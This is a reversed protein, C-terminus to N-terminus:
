PKAPDKQYVILIALEELGVQRLSHSSGDRTLVASGPVLLHVKGDLTLEARGSLVYYVEDRGHAHLGISAGDRLVRRRFALAFDPADQFFPSALTMGQGGHPGPQLVVIRDQHEILSPRAQAAKRAEVDQPLACDTDRITDSVSLLGLDVLGGGVLCAMALAGRETFHTDDVLGLAPDHLFYAKSAEPGLAQVYDMSLRTLDLLPLQERAALARAANAYPTHSDTLRGADDFYRRTVPTILVPRAQASRAAEVFRMLGAPFAQEPEVYRTPDDAKADNHGFQILLLDGAQLEAALPAFHGLDVYSKTSRGSVARNIVVIEPVLFRDLVQGWGMRPHRSQEYTSATSDGAIVIRTPRAEAAALTTAFILAWVISLLFIRQCTGATLTGNGKQISTQM